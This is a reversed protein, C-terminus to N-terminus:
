SGATNYVQVISPASWLAVFLYPGGATDGDYAIAYVYTAPSNVNFSSIISGTPSLDM